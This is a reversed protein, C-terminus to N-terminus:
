LSLCQKSGFPECDQTDMHSQLGGCCVMSLLFGLVHLGTGLSVQWGTKNDEKRGRRRQEMEKEQTSVHCGRCMYILLDFWKCLMIEINDRNQM